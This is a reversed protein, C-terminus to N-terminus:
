KTRRPPPSPSVLWPRLQEPGHVKGLKKWAVFWADQTADEAIAHDRSIALCVRRMGEHHEAILRRVAFEDGAVASRLLDRRDGDVTPTLAQM